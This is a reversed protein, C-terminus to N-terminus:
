VPHGIIQVSFPKRICAKQAPTNNYSKNSFATFDLTEAIM